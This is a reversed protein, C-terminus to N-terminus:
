NARQRAHCSWFNLAAAISKPKRPWRRSLEARLRTVSRIGKEKSVNVAYRLIEFQLATIEASPKKM